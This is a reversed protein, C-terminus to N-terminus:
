PLYCSRFIRTHVLSIPIDVDLNENTKMYNKKSLEPFTQRNYQFFLKFFASSTCICPLGFGPYFVNPVVPHFTSRSSRRVSLSGGSDMPPSEVSNCGSGSRRDAGYEMSSEETASAGFRGASLFSRLNKLGKPVGQWCHALSIGM